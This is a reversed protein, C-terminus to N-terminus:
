RAPSTTNVSAERAQPIAVLRGARTAVLATCPNPADIIVGWVMATMVRSNGGCRRPTAMPSHPAVAPTAMSTPGGSPPMRTSVRLQRHIKKTFMGIPNMAM